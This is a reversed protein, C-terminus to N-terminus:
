ERETYLSHSIWSSYESLFKKREDAGMEDLSKKTMSALNEWMDIVHQPPTVVVGAATIRLNVINFFPEHCLDLKQFKGYKEDVCKYLVIGYRADKNGLGSRVYWDGNKIEIGFGDKM